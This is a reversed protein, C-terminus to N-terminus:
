TKKEFVWLANSDPLRAPKGNGDFLEIKGALGTEYGPQLYSAHEAPLPIAIAPEGGASLWGSMRAKYEEYPLVGYQERIEYPFSAPGWCYIYLFTMADAASLRVRDAHGPVPTFTIVRGEFQKVFLDFFERADPAVFRLIREGPPPQVGDRIVIRGGPALARWASQLLDRVQELHFKPDVYSYIEHLVSCFVVTDAKRDTLVAPLQFADAEVVKWRKNEKTKRTALAEVVLRSVDIGIIEAEPFREELLDLVVGGGPGVEVIRGPKVWDLMRAKDSRSSNMHALYTTENALRDFEDKRLGYVDCLTKLTQHFAASSKSEYIALLTFLAGAEESEAFDVAAALTGGLSIELTGLAGGPLAGDLLAEVPLKELMAEVVRVRYPAARGASAHLQDVLPLLSVHLPRLASAGGEGRSPSQPSPPPAVGNAFRLAAAIGMALVRLQADPSLAATAAEAYWLQVRGLLSVLRAATEPKLGAIAREILDPPEGAALRTSRLRGLRDALRARDRELPKGPFLREWAEGETHMLEAEVGDLSSGRSAVDAVRIEVGLMEADLADGFLGERVGATDCVNVLHFADLALARTEVEPRGIAAALAPVDRRLWRVLPAFSSLPTEGRVAQGTLGHSEILALVLGALAPKAAFLPFVSLAGPTERGPPLTKELIARAAENHVTLDVGFRARWLERQAATGGKAFDLHVLAVRVCPALGAAAIRRWREVERAFAAPSLTEDGQFRALDGSELGELKRSLVRDLHDLLPMGAGKDHEVSAHRDSPTALAALEPHMWAVEDAFRSLPQDRLADLIALVSPTDTALKDALAEAELGALATLTSERTSLALLAADREGGRWRVRAIVREAAELGLHPLAGSGVAALALRDDAASAVAVRLAGLRKAADVIPLVSAM